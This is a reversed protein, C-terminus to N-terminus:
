RDKERNAIPMEKATILKMLIMIPVEEYRILSIPSPFHKLLLAVPTGYRVSDIIRINAAM